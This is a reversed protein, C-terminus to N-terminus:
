IGTSPEAPGMFCVLLGDGGFWQNARIQTQVAKLGLEKIKVPRYPFWSAGAQASIEWNLM